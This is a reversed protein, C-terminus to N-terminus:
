IMSTMQNILIVEWLKKMIKYFVKKCSTLKLDVSDVDWFFDVSYNCIIKDGFSLIM